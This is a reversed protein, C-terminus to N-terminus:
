KGRVYAVRVVLDWYMPCCDTNDNDNKNNCAYLCVHVKMGEYVCLWSLRCVYLYVYMCENTCVYMPRCVYIRTYM